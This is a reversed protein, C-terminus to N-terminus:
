LYAKVRYCGLQGPNGIFIGCNFNDLVLFLHDDGVQIGGPPQLNDGDPFSGIRFLIRHFLGAQFIGLNSKGQCIPCNQLLPMARSKELFIKDLVQSKSHRQNKQQMVPM